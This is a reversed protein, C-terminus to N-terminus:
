AYLDYGGWLILNRHLMVNGSSCIMSAFIDEPMNASLVQYLSFRYQNKEDLAYQTISERSLIKSRMLPHDARACAVIEDGVLPVVQIDGWEQGALVDELYARSASLVVVDCYEQLLYSMLETNAVEIIRVATHPYIELFDHLIRPFFLDTLVSASFLSLSGFLNRERAEFRKLEYLMEEYEQLLRRAHDAFIHGQPTLSIGQYNRELLATGLEAELNKISRNLAQQTLFSKQAAANISGTEAVNLFQILQDIHM